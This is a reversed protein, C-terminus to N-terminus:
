SARYPNYYSFNLVGTLSLAAPDLRYIIGEELLIQAHSDKISSFIIMAQDGALSNVYIPAMVRWLYIQRSPKHWLWCAQQGDLAEVTKKIAEPLSQGSELHRHIGGAIVQSDVDVAPNIRWQPFDRYNLLLGNHALLLTDTEFPHIEAIHTSQGGTPARVHGLAVTAQDIPIKSADFPTTYRYVKCADIDCILGGFGLNGRATNLQGLQGFQVSDIKARSVIGFIGCM